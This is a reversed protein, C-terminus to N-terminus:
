HRVATCVSWGIKVGGFFIYQFLFVFFSFHLLLVQRSMVHRHSLIGRGGWGRWTNEILIAARVNRGHAGALNIKPKEKRKPLIETGTGQPRVSVAEPVSSGM